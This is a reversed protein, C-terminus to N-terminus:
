RIMSLIAEKWCSINFGIVNTFVRFSITKKVYGIFIFEFAEIGLGCVNFAGGRTKATHHLHTRQWTHEPRAQFIVYDTLTSNPWPSPTITRPLSVPM